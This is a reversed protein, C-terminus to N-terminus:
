IVFHHIPLDNRRFILQKGGDSIQRYAKYLSTIVKKRQIQVSAVKIVSKGAEEYSKETIKVEEQVFRKFSISKTIIRACSNM